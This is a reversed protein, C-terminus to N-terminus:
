TVTVESAVIVTPQLQGRIWSTDPGAPPSTYDVAIFSDDSECPLDALWTVALSDPDIEWLSSRKRTASYIAQEFRTRVAPPLWTHEHDFSGDGWLHRRAIMLVRSGHRFVRPSDFKRSDIRRRMAAPDTLSGALVVSGWDNPGELRAVGLVSGDDLEAVDLETGGPYIVGPDHHNWSRGDTSTWAELRTPEPRAAYLKDAGTYVFYTLRGGIVRVRWPVTPSEWVVEPPGFGSGDNVLLHTRCPEYKLPHTGLEMLYLHLRGDWEVFCSERLDAGVSVTTEHHWPGDISDASAVEFRAKSSAFHTPATRWALWVRGNWITVDLNNNSRLPTVGVSAPGPVLQTRLQVDVAM